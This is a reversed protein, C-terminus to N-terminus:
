QLCRWEVWTVRMGNSSDGGRAGRVPKIDMHVVDSSHLHEVIDLLELALVMVAGESVAGKGAVRFRDREHVCVCASVCACVRPGGPPGRGDVM